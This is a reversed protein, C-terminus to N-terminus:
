GSRHQSRLVVTIKYLFLWERQTFFGGGGRFFSSYWIQIELNMKLISISGLTEKKFIKIRVECCPQM